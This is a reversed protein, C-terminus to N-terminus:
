IMSGSAAASEDADRLCQLAGNQRQDDAGLGQKPGGGPNMSVFVLGGPRYRAGVYGPQPLRDAWNRNLLRSAGPGFIADPDATLIRRWLLAVKSRLDTVESYGL